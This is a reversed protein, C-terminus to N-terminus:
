LVAEEIDILLHSHAHVQLRDGNLLLTSATDEFIVAPGDLITGAAIAARRYFPIETASESDLCVARYFSPDSSREDAISPRFKPKDTLMTAVCRLTVIEAREDAASHSYSREHVADFRQKLVSVGGASLMQRDLAVNVTHEQGVYRMDAYLDVRDAVVEGLGLRTCADRVLDDVLAELSPLEDADVLTIRTRSAHGQLDAFLMGYASFVGPSPPIVVQRMGLERAIQTAHLPGAGGYAILVFDAPNLGREITVASIAYAMATNAVEVVGLAAAEVSVGLPEAIASKLASTAFNRDLQLNGALPLDPHLRGLVVNADTVTADQGGLGYCAPGPAAGASRPGVRLEGFETVQAISGGGTGVEHIDMVPTLVPLGVNYSGIFYQHGIRPVGDEVVGAKATTGGMDFAVGNAAGIDALVSQAGIVGGAPGSEILSICNRRAEDPGILGGNSQMLFFNGEFGSQQLQQDLVGLYRAVLPGIYANAVVTSTREYERYERTLDHSVTIFCHPLRERLARTLIEEHVPNAYAHLLLVAIAEVDAAVLEDVLADIADESLPTVIRDPLMREDIEFRLAREVLPDHKQFFLNFSDPRNIRGIEYVDRFGLTTVLATRVGKRELLANIVVTSGHVLTDITAVDLGTEAIGDLVAQSLDPSSLLKGLRVSQTAADFAIVDTFTGGIDSGARIM